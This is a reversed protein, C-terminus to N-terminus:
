NKKNNLTDKFRSNEAVTKPHNDLLKCIKQKFYEYNTKSLHDFERYQM